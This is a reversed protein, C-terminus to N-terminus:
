VKCRVKWHFDDKLDLNTVETQCKFMFTFKMMMMM